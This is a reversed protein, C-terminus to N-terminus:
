LYSLVTQYVEEESKSADIFLATDGLYERFAEGILRQHEPNDNRETGYDARRKSAVVPDVELVIILDPKPMDVNLNLIFEAQNSGQAVSHYVIGSPIYRDVVLTKGQELLDWLYQCQEMNNAAFLLQAARENHKPNPSFTLTGKLFQDILQGTATSRNPLKVYVYDPNDACLHKCLTTKGACDPGEIAILPM